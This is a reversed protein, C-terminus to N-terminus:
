VHLVSGLGAMEAGSTPLYCVHAINEHAIEVPFVKRRVSCKNLAAMKGVKRYSFEKRVSTNYAPPWVTM